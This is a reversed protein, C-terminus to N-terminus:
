ISNCVNTHFKSKKRMHILIEGRSHSQRRRMHNNKDRDAPAKRKNPLLVSCKVTATYFGGGLLSLLHEQRM